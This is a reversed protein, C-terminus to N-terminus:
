LIIYITFCIINFLAPITMCAVVDKWKFPNGYEKDKYGASIISALTAGASIVANPIIDIGLAIGFVLFTAFIVGGIYCTKDRNDEDYWDSIKKILKKMM